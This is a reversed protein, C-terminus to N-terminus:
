KRRADHGPSFGELPEHRAPKPKELIELANLLKQMDIGTGLCEACRLIYTGRGRRYSRWGQGSCSECHKDVAHRIDTVLSRFAVVLPGLPKKACDSCLQLVPRGDVRLEDVSSTKVGCRPCEVPEDLIVPRM